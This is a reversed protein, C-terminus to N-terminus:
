ESMSVGAAKLVGGWRTFETGFFNQFANPDSMVSPVVAVNELQKQIDPRAIAKKIAADIKAVVEPSTKAPAFIGVWNVVNFDPLEEQATPVDALFSVRKDSTVALANLRKDKILTYLPPLDMVIGDVHGALTDTVAPGAGKYPVHVINGKSAQKLLEITLHPLGGAGSSALTVQKSRTLELLEKLNKVKLHPGVAVAEPTLGVTNIPTFDTMSDFPPKKMTQPSLVVPSVSSLLLTHGDPKAKAVNGAGIMGSAGAKNEVVITTGLAEGIAPAVIRAVIDNSGGPPYGVIMTIPHAPFNQALSPTAIIFTPLSLVALALTRLTARRSKSTKLM